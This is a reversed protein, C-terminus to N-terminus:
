ATGTASTLRALRFRLIADWRWQGHLSVHDGGTHRSGRGRLDIAGTGARCRRRLRPPGGPHQSSHHQDGKFTSAGEFKPINPVASMGTALILQKPRLTVPKGNRVVKVVWEKKKEDYKASKCTTSSWYNLEMIKTYTELWDGIKDKPSFVPWDDPFPLYPM